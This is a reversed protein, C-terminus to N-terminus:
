RTPNVQNALLHLSICQLLLFCRVLLSRKEGPEIQSKFAQWTRWRFFLLERRPQAPACFSFVRASQSRTWAPTLLQCPRSFFARWGLHFEAKWRGWEIHSNRNGHFKLLRKRSPPVPGLPISSTNLTQHLLHSGSHQKHLCLWKTWYKLITCYSEGRMRVDSKFWFWYIDLKATIEIDIM